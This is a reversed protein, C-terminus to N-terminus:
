EHLGFLVESAHPALAPKAAVAGVSGRLRLIASASM